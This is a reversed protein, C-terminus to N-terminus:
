SLHYSIINLNDQFSLTLTPLTSGTICVTSNSMVGANPLLDELYLYEVSSLESNFAFEKLSILLNM